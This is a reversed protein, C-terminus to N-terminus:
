PRGPNDPAPVQVTDAGAAAPVSGTTSNGEIQASQEVPVGLRELIAAMTQGLMNIQEQQAALVSTMQEQGQLVIEATGNIGDEMAQFRQEQQEVEPTMGTKMISKLTNSRNSGSLEIQKEIIYQMAASANALAAQDQSAALAPMAQSLPVFLQNLI